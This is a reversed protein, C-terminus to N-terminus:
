TLFMDELIFAKSKYTTYKELFELFDARTKVKKAKSEGILPINLFVIIDSYTCKMNLIKQFVKLLLKDEVLKPNTNNNVWTKINYKILALDNGLIDCFKNFASPGLGKVKTKNFIMQYIGILKASCSPNLCVLDRSILDLKSGCAPCHSPENYTESETEVSLVSPVVEHSRVVKIISHVGCKKEKLWSLNNAAVKTIVAGGLEVPEIHLVPVVKGTASLDWTIYQVETLAFSETFKFAISNHVPYNYTNNPEIHITSFVLGDYPITKNGIKYFDSYPDFFNKDRSLLQERLKQFTLKTYSPITFGYDKLMLLTKDKDIPESLISYAVVQLLNCEEIFTKRQSLGIAANRPHKINSSLTQYDEEFLIVEGRVILDKKSPLMEPISHKVNRTIDIGIFGDGRTVVRDLIGDVYYCVVSGGDLKPTVIIEEDDKFKSFKEFDREKVKDLSGIPYVKHRIEFKVDRPKYGYAIVRLLRNNSDLRKLEAVLTDFVSDSVLANGEYYSQAYKQIKEVLDSVNM